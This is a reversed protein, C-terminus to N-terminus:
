RGIEVLQVGLAVCACLAIIGLYLGHRQQQRLLLQYAASLNNDEIKNMVQMLQRPLLPLTKSWYPVEHKLQAWWGRVGVEQDMWRTLFPQATAWLDLEPYLQRGLGEVNVLTKQLLILQPQINAQFRRGITFVQYLVLGFSIEGLPKNFLPELIARIATEFAAVNTDKPVWGSEIHAVAVARYDRNFFALMNVALAHKDEKTLSGMIGFDLAIYRGDDAVFINGPHMDAHFFGHTFVQTFFINVATTALRELNLGKELLVDLHSIPTGDMWEMTMVEPRCYDYYMTPVLLESSGVFNRQLQSGNGAENMLDLEELVSRSFEAVVSKPRLRRAEASVSSVWRALSALLALDQQITQRINPRLIKVAVAQGVTANGVPHLRAKHVQGISASAVAELEFEAYVQSLPLGLSKEIIAVALEGAFPPVRSQLHSLEEAFDPRLLDPRTSLAQGFKVFIPGLNELVLRVRVALPESNKRRFPLIKLVRHLFGWRSWALFEDLGFAYFLYLIHLLRFLSM